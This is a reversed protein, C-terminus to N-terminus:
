NNGRIVLCCMSGQPIMENRGARICTCTYTSVYESYVRTAYLYEWFVTYVGDDHQTYTSTM